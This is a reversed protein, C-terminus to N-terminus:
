LVPLGPLLSGLSKGDLEPDLHTRIWQRDLTPYVPRRRFAPDYDLVESANARMLRLGNSMDQQLLRGETDYWVTSQIGGVKEIMKWAQFTVGDIQIEEKAQVTVDVALDLMGAVPDSVHTSWRAGEKIKESRTIIPLLVNSMLIPETLSVRGCVDRSPLLGALPVPFGTANSSADNEVMSPLTLPEGSPEIRFHYYLWDEECFAQCLVQQDALKILAQLTELEFASNMRGAMAFDMPLTMGMMEFILRTRSEMEYSPIKSQEEGAGFGTSPHVALHSLGLRRGRSSVWVWHDYDSWSVMLVEASVGMRRLADGPRLGSRVVLLVMMVLWIITITLGIWFRLSKFLRPMSTGGPGTIFCNLISEYGRAFGFALEGVGLHDYLGRFFV